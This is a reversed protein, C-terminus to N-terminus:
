VKATDGVAIIKIFNRGFAAMLWPRAEFRPGKHGCHNVSMSDIMFM